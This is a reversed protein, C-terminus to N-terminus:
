SIPPTRQREERERAIRERAFRRDQETLERRERTSEQNIIV